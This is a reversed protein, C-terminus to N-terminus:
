PSRVAYFRMSNTPTTTFQFVGPSINSATGLVTWNALPVDLNTTFLVTFSANLNANTFGFQLNGNSLLITNILKPPPVVGAQTVLINQGL